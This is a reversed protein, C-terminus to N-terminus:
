KRDHDLNESKINRIEMIDSFNLNFYAIVM